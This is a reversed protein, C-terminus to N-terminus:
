RPRCWAFPWSPKRSSPLDLHWTKFLCLARLLLFFLLLYLPIFFLKTILSWSSSQLTLTSVTTPGRRDSCSCGRQGSFCLFSDKSCPCRAKASNSQFTRLLMQANCMHKGPWWTCCSHVAFAVPPVPLWVRVWFTQAKVERLIFCTSIHCM